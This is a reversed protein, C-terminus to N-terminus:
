IRAQAVGLQDQLRHVEGRLRENRHTRLNAIQCNNCISVRYSKDNDLAQIPNCVFVALKM